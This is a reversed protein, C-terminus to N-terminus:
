FGKYEYKLTVKKQNKCNIFYTWEVEDGDRIGYGDIIVRPIEVYFPSDDDNKDEKRVRKKISLEVM